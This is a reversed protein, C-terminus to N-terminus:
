RAAGLERARDEVAAVLEDDAALEEDLAALARRPADPGHALATLEEARPDRVQHTRLHLLWGALAAVASGPLRGRRREARLVPLIRAPLKQSGDAAIQRLHHRLGRSAFRRRLRRRYELLDDPGLTAHRAAADWWSEVWESLRPHRVAEDITGCGLAPGTYALLSHAGNLFWLKRQEYADLDDVFRAGAREWAPRGLRFEGALLWEGFPETVVPARDELGLLRATTTRDQETTAPTIRDVVTDVFSVQEDLWARFEAGCRQARSRLASRLAAGNGPLNDCPVLSLPARSTEYRRRLGALLRGLATGALDDPARYAAETITLTVLAVEPSALDALWRETDDGRHVRSISDVIEVRPATDGRVQVSYLGEQETLLGPLETNRFTYAAIGWDPDAATYVAQHARHFAGLGLHVARVPAAPRARASTRDLRAM